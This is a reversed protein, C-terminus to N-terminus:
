QQGPVEQIVLHRGYHSKLLSVALDVLLVPLYVKTGALERTKRGTLLRSSPQNV